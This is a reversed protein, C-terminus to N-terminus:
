SASWDDPLLVVGNVNNVRAKAYRIGSTTTRTNFIYNWEGNSGGTLTRWQGTTNNITNHIGWDAHSYTGILNYQYSTGDTPGYGHGPIGGNLQIDWPQYYVNGNNWGSTGWGFLDIWGNYTQSINANTEGICDWQNTAFRWTNTSAQYQLNGQSFYIQDGNANITFLGNIAGIPANSGGNYTFNAVLHRNSTVTFTYNANTSVQSGNETWNNFIYGTAVTASVTCSQGQQYTGGGTM